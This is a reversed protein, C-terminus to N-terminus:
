FSWGLSFVVRNDIREAGTNPTNDYDMVYQLSAFMAETLSTSLKSDWRGYVDNSDELSPFVEVSSTFKTDESITKHLNGAIRAAVYDDKTATKLDEIVYVLGFEGALSFDPEEYFQYGAGAGMVARMDLGALSDYDAGANGYVYTKEDETLFYDYKISTGSKRTTVVKTGSAKDTAYNSYGKWTWRDYERRLEAVADGSYAQTQTNGDTFTAGLSVSGTWEPDTMDDAEAEDQTVALLSPDLPLLAPAPTPAAETIAPALAILMTTFM